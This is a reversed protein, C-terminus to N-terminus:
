PLNRREPGNARRQHYRQDLRRMTEAGLSLQPGVASQCQFGASAPFVAVELALQPAGLLLDGNPTQVLIM